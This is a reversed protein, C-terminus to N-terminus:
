ALRWDLEENLSSKSSHNPVATNFTILVEVSLVHRWLISFAMLAMNGSTKRRGMDIRSTRSLVKKARISLLAMNWSQDMEELDIMMFNNLIKQQKLLAKQTKKTAENGGFRTKIAAFMSQADVYQNFTLQHENPLAMLLLSRAKVDNKKCIKEEATSPVIMKTATSPGTEPATVPIPVWSNGNGLTQAHSAQGVCQKSHEGVGNSRSSPLLLSPVPPSSSHTPPATCSALREGTSPPSLSIPPSPSPTTMALLREVEAEPPLSISAQLRVTIRAGTTSINTSSPPSVPEVTPIVVASDASAVHEEEDEEDADEDDADDGSSDDDDDDGKDMPYDVPGDESEDDEYEELDEEPDLETIYGPSKTTPSDIPPLPQEEAPFVYEDELPIYEPYVHEPMYDPDHAQTFM